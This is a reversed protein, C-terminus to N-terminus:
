FCFARLNRDTVALRWIRFLNGASAIDDDDRYSLRLKDSAIVKPVIFRLHHNIYTDSGYYIASNFPKFILYWLTLEDSINIKFRHFINDHRNRRDGASDPGHRDGRQKFIQKNRILPM